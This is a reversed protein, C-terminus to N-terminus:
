EKREPPEPLPMWHSVPPFLGADVVSDFNYEDNDGYYIVVLSFWTDPSREDWWGGLVYDEKNPVRTEIPIWKDQGIQECIQNLRESETDSMTSNEIVFSICGQITEFEEDTFLYVKRDSM